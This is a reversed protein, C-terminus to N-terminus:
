GGFRGAQQLDWSEPNQIDMMMSHTIRSREFHADGSISFLDPDLSEFWPEDEVKDELTLAHAILFKVM